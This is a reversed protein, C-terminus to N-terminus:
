TEDDDDNYLVLLTIMEWIDRERQSTAVWDINCKEERRIPPSWRGASYLRAYSTRWQGEPLYEVVGEREEEMGEALLQGVYKLFVHENDSDIM